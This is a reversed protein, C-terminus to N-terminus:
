RKAQRREIKDCIWAYISDTWARAATKMQERTFEESINGSITTYRSLIGGPSKCMEFASEAGTSCQEFRFRTEWGDADAGGEEAIVEVTTMEGGREKDKQARAIAAIKEAEGETDYRKADKLSGTVEVGSFGKGYKVYLPAPLEDNTLQIYYKPM